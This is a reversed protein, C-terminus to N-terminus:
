SLMAPVLQNLSLTYNDESQLLENYLEELKNKHEREQQSLFHFLDQIAGPEIEDALSAYQEMATQELTIAYKLVAKEDPNEGLDQIKFASNFRHDSPPKTVMQSLQQEINPHNLLATFIKVHDDEEKILTGVLDRVKESVKSVLENYFSHATREFLVAVMLIERLSEKSNPREKRGLSEYIESIEREMFEKGMIEWAVEYITGGMKSLTVLRLM